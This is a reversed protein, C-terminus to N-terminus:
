KEAGFCIVRGDETALYLRGGAASLGDYVPKGDLPITQLKKGDAVSIVWLENKDNPDQAAPVGAFYATDGALVVGVMQQKIDEDLLWKVTGGANAYLFRQNYRWDKKVMTKPVGFRNRWAAVGLKDNFALSEGTIQGDTLEIHKESTLAPEVCAMYDTIAVATYYHTTRLIGSPAKGGGVRGGDSIRYYAKTLYLEKGDSLFFDGSSIGGRVRWRIKGTAADAAFMWIGGDVAVSRGCTFFIEGNLPMVGGIVPWASAFQDREAIYKEAPAARLRWVEKGTRADLGYVSGGGTGFLCLGKHLAPPFEVRGDAVFSWREMGTAADRAFVRHTQPEAVCIVGYASVPQTLRSNGPKETWLPKLQGPLKGPMANSRPTDKRYMPWDDPTEVLAAPAPGSSVVQPKADKAADTLWTRSGAPAMALFGRLSIGCDCHHPLFYTLGNAPVHGLCCPSRVTGQTLEVGSKLDLYSSSCYLLYNTCGTPPFCKGLGKIQLERKKAGTRPDLVVVNNGPTGDLMWLGDPYPLTGAGGGPNEKKWLLDGKRTDFAALHTPPTWTPKHQVYVVGAKCFVRPTGVAKPMATKWRTAGTAIEVAELEAAGLVYAVGGEAPPHAGTPRTWLVKGSEKDLAAARGFAVVNLQIDSALLFAGASSVKAPVFGPAYERIMKGSRGDRAILIKNDVAYVQRDDCTLTGGPGHPPVSASGVLPVRWLEFGNYADRAVWWTNSARAEACYIRGGGTVRGSYTGSLAGWRPDGIWRVEAWPRAASDNNVSSLDAGGLNHTWADFGPDPAKVCSVWGARSLAKVEVAGAAKLKADLGATAGANADSGLVATGGPALVRLVEEVAVPERGWDAAVLLNVLNDAYPLHEAERAVVSAQGAVGAAVLAKRAAEVGVANRASGQVYMRSAKALAATLKGDGDGVALCLGQDTGASKVALAALDEAPEAAASAGTSLALLLIGLAKRRVTIM